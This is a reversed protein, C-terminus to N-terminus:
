QRLQIDHLFFQGRLSFINNRFRMSERYSSIVEYQNMTIITNISSFKRKLVVIWCHIATGTSVTFYLRMMRVRCVDDEFIRM